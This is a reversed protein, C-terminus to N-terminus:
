NSTTESNVILPIQRVFSESDTGLKFTKLDNFIYEELGRCGPYCKDLDPDVSPLLKNCYFRYVKREREQPINNPPFGEFDKFDANEGCSMYLLTPLIDLSLVKTEDTSLETKNSNFPKIMFTLDYKGNGEGTDNGGHDSCVLIATNDYINAEKLLRIFESLVHFCSRTSPCPNDFPTKTINCKEDLCWPRHVGTTYYFAFVPKDESLTIGSSAMKMLFSPNTKPIFIQDSSIGEAFIQVVNEAFDFSFFFHKKLFFPVSCYGSMQALCNHLRNYDLKYTIRQPQINSFYDSFYESPGFLFSTSVPCYLRMDYGAEKMQEYFSKASPSHWMKEFLENFNNAPAPLMTGTLEHVMGPFTMHYNARAETYWIFDKVIEKAEPYVEFCKQAYESGLTDFVFVVVNKEKSLHFQKSGDALSKDAHGWVDSRASHVMSVAAVFELFFIFGAAMSIVKSFHSPAVKRLIVPSLIVAIWIILNIIGFVRHESWQPEVGNMTGLHQNMFMAQLYVCFGLGAIIAVLYDSIMPPILLLVISAGIISIALVRLNWNVFDQFVFPIQLSNGFYVSWPVFVLIGFALLSVSLLICMRRSLSFYESVKSNGTKKRKFFLLDVILLFPLLSIIYHIRNENLGIKQIFTKSSMTNVKDQPISTAEENDGTAEEPISDPASGSAALAGGNFEFDNRGAPIFFVILSVIIVFLVTLPKM